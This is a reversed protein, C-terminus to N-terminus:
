QHVRRVLAPAFPMRRWYPFLFVIGLLVMNVVFHRFTSKLVGRWSTGQSVTGQNARDIDRRLLDIRENLAAIQTQLSSLVRETEAALTSEIASSLPLSTLAPDSDDIEYNTEMMESQLLADAVSSTSSSSHHSSSYPVTSMSAGTVSTQSVHGLLSLSMGLRDGEVENSDASVVVPSSPNSSHESSASVLSHPDTSEMNPQNQDHNFSLVTRVPNVSPSDQSDAKEMPSLDSSSSVPSKWTLDKINRRRPDDTPLEQLITLTKEIYRVKAQEKSLGSLARWSEWRTRAVANYFPPRETRCDGLTAQKYLSYLQNRRDLTVLPSYSSIFTKILETAKNFRLEFLVNPEGPTDM